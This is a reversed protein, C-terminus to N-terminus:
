APTLLVAEVDEEKMKKSIPEIAETLFDTKNWQFGYFSYSTPALRGITGEGEFEAMRALPLMVNMDQQIYQTNIHLHHVQIDEETTGRPIVRFSPDGWTPQEKERELDFPPEVGRHYLGGSTILGFKCDGLPKPLPTWPVPLEPQREDSEYVAQILRPLYKFSDIPM